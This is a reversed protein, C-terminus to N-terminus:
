DFLRKAPPVMETPLTTPLKYEPDAVKNEILHMALAFEWIDLSGDKDIDALTWIVRLVENSLGSDVMVKRAQAGSLKNASPGLARFKQDYQSKKEETVVWNMPNTDAFPNLTDQVPKTEPALMKMLKPIDSALVEDMTELLKPNLKPFKSLDFDRLANKFKEVDPLDSKPIRHTAAFKQFEEDMREILQSQKKKKGILSPMEARLNDIISVHLKLVRARKVLENVKRITSFRPLSRIDKFLDAEEAEFLAANDEFHLPQDWFSGTYVRMVEPNRVIKGLSWMLAGYVRMLQQTNIMDAKNLVIRIKEEHGKLTEIVSRFEDSIDLKHADFLLLIIDCREAFWNVVTPFEYARGIRQKEGSLVGPTDIFTVKELMPAPCESAEFKGLFSSGFKTLSTFPKDQQISLANGPIVMEEPGHMVAIFRDTTPEPGIRIGPFERDICYRIFSTKGVSYQGMLLIMPKADLDSDRLLPSHFDAFKYDKELPLLKDRYIRKLIQMVDTEVAPGEPEKAKKKSRFAM